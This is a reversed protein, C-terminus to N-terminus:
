RCGPPAPAKKWRHCSPACPRRWARFFVSFRTDPAPLEGHAELYALRWREVVQELDPVLALAYRQGVGVVHLKFWESPYGESWALLHAAIQQGQELVLVPTPHGQHDLWVCAQAQGSPYREQGVVLRNVESPALTEVASAQGRCLPTYSRLFVTASSRPKGSDASDPDKLAQRLEAELDFGHAAKIAAVIEPLRPDALMIEIQRPSRGDWSFDAYFDALSREFSEYCSWLGKDATDQLKLIQLEAFWENSRAPYKASAARYHGEAEQRALAIDHQRFKAV